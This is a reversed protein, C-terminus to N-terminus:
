GGVATFRRVGARWVLMALVGFVVIWGVQWAYGQVGQAWSLSGTALEAPFGLMARFPLAEAISRVPEPLFVVPAASGGLLFILVQGFGVVAHVRETWFAALALSWTFLFRLLAAFVAAPLAVAVDLVAFSGDLTLATLMLVPLGIMVLWVRIALNVGIPGIVVPQPKLLDHSVYGDYIRGSFTHNEYSATMLGVGLLAIYYSAIRPDGPLVESWVFLGILPAITEGAVLTVAFWWGGSWNLIERWVHLGTLRLVRTV